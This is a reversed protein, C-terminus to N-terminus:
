IRVNHCIKFKPSEKDNEKNFNIYKGSNVDDPKIKITRNYM